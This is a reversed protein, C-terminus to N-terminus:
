KAGDRDPESRITNVVQDVIPEVSRTPDESSLAGVFKTYFERFNRFKSRIGDPSDDDAIKRLNGVTKMGQKAFGAMGAVASMATTMMTLGNEAIIFVDGVIPVIRIMNKGFKSLSKMVKTAAEIGIEMMKDSGEILPERLENTIIETIERSADITNALYEMAVPDNISEKLALLNSQVTNLSGRINGSTFPKDGDGVMKMVEQLSRIMTATTVRQIAKMMATRFSGDAGADAGADDDDTGTGAPQPQTTRTPVPTPVPTPRSQTGEPVGISDSNNNRGSLGNALAAFDGAMAPFYKKAFQAIGREIRAPDRDVHFDLTVSPHLAISLKLDTVFRKLMKDPRQKYANTYEGIAKAAVRQASALDSDSMNKWEANTKRSVTQAFGRMFARINEELAPRLRNKLKQVKDASLSKDRLTGPVRVEKGGNGGNGEEGEEADFTLFVGMFETYIRRAASGLDQVIASEILAKNRPFRKVRVLDTIKSFLDRAGPDSVHVPATTDMIRTVSADVAGLTKVAFKKFVETNKKQDDSGQAGGTMFTIPNAGGTMGTMNGVSNSNSYARLHGIAGGVGRLKRTINRRKSPLSAAKQTNSKSKSANRRKPM